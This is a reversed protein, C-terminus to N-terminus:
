ADPRSAVVRELEEKVRYLPYGRRALADELLSLETQLRRAVDRVRADTSRRYVAHLERYYWVQGAWGTKFRTWLEEGVTEYDSRTASLNHLKDCASVLLSGPAADPGALHKIYATKRDIWPPKETAAIDVQSDSCAEVIAAVDPGFGKELEELRASGGGDEVVDHLIAAATESDTGGFSMVLEAVGLLHSVYPVDSGKRVQTAHVRGAYKVAEGIREFNWSGAGATEM